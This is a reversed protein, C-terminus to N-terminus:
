RRTTSELLALRLAAVAKRIEGVRDGISDAMLRADQPLLPANAISLDYVDLLASNCASEIESLWAQQQALRQKLNRNEGLLQEVIENVAEKESAVARCTVCILGTTTSHGCNMCINTLGDGGEVNIERVRSDIWDDEYNQKM